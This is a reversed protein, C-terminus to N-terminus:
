CTQRRSRAPGPMEGTVGAALIGPHFIVGPRGAPRHGVGLRAPGAAGPPVRVGVGVLLFVAVEQAVRVEHPARLPQALGVGPQEALHAAPPHQLQAAAGRGGGPPQGGLAGRHDRHVQGRPHQPVGAGTGVPRAYAHRQHLGVRQREREAVAAEVDDAGREARHREHGVRGAHHPLHVPHQPGPPAPHERDGVRHAPDEEVVRALAPQDGGVRVEVAPRVHLLGGVARDGIDLLVPREAVPHALQDRRAEHQPVQHFRLPRRSV